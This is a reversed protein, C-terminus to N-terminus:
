NSGNVCYRYVIHKGASKSPRCIEVIDNPRLGIFMAVPDTNLIIPLKEPSEINLYKKIKEEFFSEDVKKHPPVLDHNTVNFMLNKLPFIQIYVGTTKYIQNVTVLVNQTPKNVVLLIIDKKVKTLKNAKLNEEMKSIITEVFQSINKPTINTKNLFYHVEIHCKENSSIIPEPTSTIIDAALVNMEATTFNKYKDVQFGRYELMELTIYRSKFLYTSLPRAANLQKKVSVTNM